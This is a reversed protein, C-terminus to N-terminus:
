LCPMKNEKNNSNNALQIELCFKSFEAISEETENVMMPEYLAGAYFRILPSDTTLPNNCFRWNDEAKFWQHTTNLLSIMSISTSIENNNDNNNDEVRAIIKVIKKFKGNPSSLVNDISSIQKPSLIITITITFKEKILTKWEVDKYYKSPNSILDTDFLNIYSSSSPM